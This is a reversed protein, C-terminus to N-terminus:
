SLRHVKQLHVLVIIKDCNRSNAAFLRNEAKEYVFDSLECWIVGISKKHHFYEDTQINESGTIERYEEQQIQAAM